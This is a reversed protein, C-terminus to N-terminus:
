MVQMIRIDFPLSLLSPTGESVPEGIFSDDDDDEDMVDDGHLGAVAEFAAHRPARSATPVTAPAPAAFAASGIAIAPATPINQLYFM